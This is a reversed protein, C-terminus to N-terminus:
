LNSQRIQCHHSVLRHRTRIEGFFPLRLPLNAQPQLHHLCAAPLYASSDSGSVCSSFTVSIHQYFVQASAQFTQSFMFSVARVTVSTKKGVMKILTSKRGTVSSQFLLKLLSGMNLINEWNPFPPFATYISCHVGWLFTCLSVSLDICLCTSVSFCVSQSVFIWSPLCLSLSASLCVLCIPQCNPCVFRALPCASLNLFDFRSRLKCPMNPQAASM